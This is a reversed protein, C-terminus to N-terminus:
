VVRLEELVLLSWLTSENLISSVFPLFLLEQIPHNQAKPVTSIMLTNKSNM